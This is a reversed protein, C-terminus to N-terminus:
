GVIMIPRASSRGAPGAVNYACGCLLKLMEFRKGYYADESHFSLSQAEGRLSDQVMEEWLANTKSNVSDTIILNYIVPRHLFGRQWPLSLRPGHRMLHPPM